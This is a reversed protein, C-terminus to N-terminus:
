TRSNEDNPKRPINVWCDIASIDNEDVVAHHQHAIEAFINSLNAVGSIQGQWLDIEKMFGNEKFWSIPAKINGCEDHITCNAPIQILRVDGTKLSLETSAVFNAEDETSFLVANDVGYTEMESFLPDGCDSMFGLFIGLQFSSVAYHISKNM